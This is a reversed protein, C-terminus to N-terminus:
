AAEVRGTLEGLISEIVEARKKLARIIKVDVSGRVVLHIHRVSEKQPPRHTRARSQDYEGLSFSLSYSIDYHARTLDVGVGGASIQVGLITGDGSQWAKLEDRRGSLERYPRELRAAVAAVVDLDSHFRCFVVVPEDAALDELTDELLREKSDDVRQYRHEDTKVSGGTIQQLRLLKVLPNAATITEAQFEAQIEAIMLRQMDDYVQQAQPSLDCELYIFIEPPLDLVDKSVRFTVADIKRTFEDMNKWRVVQHDHYGGMEAYHQRFLAFSTGFIRPDLFRFQAYIDLPSHPMPTGSLLLRMWAMARLRKLLLSAKGGPAKLKHSEDAIVLDWRHSAAFQAFAPQFIADYNIIAIFPRSTAKALTMGERARDTREPITGAKDDLQAIVKLDPWHEELQKAWVPVVRLPCVILIMMAKTGAILVIGVLTKGTGMDMALLCGGGKAILSMAYQYAAIQHKWLPTHIAEPLQFAPIRPAIVAAGPEQAKHREPQSRPVPYINFLHQARESIVLEGKLAIRLAAASETPYTWYTGDRRAGPIRRLVPFLDFGAEV